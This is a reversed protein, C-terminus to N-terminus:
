KKPLADGVRKYQEVDVNEAPFDPMEFVQRLEVWAEPTEKVEPIRKLWEVAEERSKVAIMWYGGVLEKSESFPGDTIVPKGNRWDLRAGKSTPQLGDLALLVGAKALQENYAMMAAMGEKSPLNGAEAAAGPHMIMMFRM